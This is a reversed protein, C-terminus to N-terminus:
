LGFYSSPYEAKFLDYFGNSALLSNTQRSALADNVKALDKGRERSWMDLDDRQKKDFKAVEVGAAGVRVVKGSKVITATLAEGVRARGEARLRNDRGVGY